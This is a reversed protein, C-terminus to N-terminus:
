DGATFCCSCFEGIRAGLDRGYRNAALIIRDRRILMAPHPLSDLLTTRLRGAERQLEQSRKREDIDLISLGLRGESWEVRWVSHAPVIHSKFFDSAREPEEPFFDLYTEDALRFLYAQFVGDVEPDIRPEHGLFVLEREQTVVRLELSEGPTGFRARVLNWVDPFSSAEPTPAPKWYEM